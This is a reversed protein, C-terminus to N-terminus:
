STSGTRGHLEKYLDAFKEATLEARFLSRDREWDDKGRQVCFEHNSLLAHLRDTLSAIDDPEVFFGNKGERIYDSQGGRRTTIVPLGMVRAEKVVNPSTDARTPLVLCWAKSMAEILRPRDLRGLRKVNPM